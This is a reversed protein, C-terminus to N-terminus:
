WGSGKVASKDKIAAFAKDKGMIATLKNGNKAVGKAIYRGNSIDIKAKLMPVNKTKSKVDYATIM